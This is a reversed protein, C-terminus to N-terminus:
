IHVLSIFICFNSIYMDPTYFFESKSKPSKQRETREFLSNELFGQIKFYSFNLKENEFPFIKTVDRRMHAYTATLRHLNRHPLPATAFSIVDIVFFLKPKM